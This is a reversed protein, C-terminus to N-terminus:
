GTMPRSFDKMRGGCDLCGMGGSAPHAKGHKNMCEVCFHHGCAACTVGIANKDAERQFFTEMSGMVLQGAGSQYDSYKDQVEAITLIPKGCKGCLIKGEKVAIDRSLEAYESGIEPSVPLEVVHTEFIPAPEQYTVPQIVELEDPTATRSKALDVAWGQSSLQQFEPFHTSGYAETETESMKRMIVISLLVVVIVTLWIGVGLAWSWGGM